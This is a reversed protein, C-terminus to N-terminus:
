FFPHKDLRKGSEDVWAYQKAPNGYVLAFDPVDKTVVSGAGVLAWKGITIGPLIVSRAGISAGQKITVGEIDWNSGVKITGDPNIARPNNDNTLICHPGIFVGDEIKSGQYISCNNQVKCNNGLSVNAGIYSSKGIICNEGISAEERIQAWHCVKASEPILSNESIQATPHIM